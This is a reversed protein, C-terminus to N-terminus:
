KKVRLWSVLPRLLTRIKRNVYYAFNLVKWLSTKYKSTRIGFNKNVYLADGWGFETWRTASRVFGFAALYDDLESV